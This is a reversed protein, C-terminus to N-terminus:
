CFSKLISVLEQNITPPHLFHVAFLFSSLTHSGHLLSNHLSLSHATPPYLSALHPPSSFFLFHLSIFVLTLTKLIQMINVKKGKFLYFLHKGELFLLNRFFLLAM